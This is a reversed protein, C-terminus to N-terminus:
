HAARKRRSLAGLAVVGLFAASTPEPVAAFYSQEDWQLVKLTSSSQGSLGTPEFFLALKNQSDWLAHDYTPEWSGMNTTDLTISQWAAPSASNLSAVTNWYVVIDNNPTAAKNVSGMATDESRTVVLVRGQADILVVPRGLDRVASASTDFANDSTRNTVQSSRWQSGTYYYLMYNRDPNNTASVPKSADSGPALWTAIFPNGNVDATLSTQNILSSNQPINQIVQAVQNANGGASTNQIIPQGYATTGGQKYWTVGNDPSQAFMINSNTQYAPSARWTWSALLNNGGGTKPVFVMSIMYANVSTQEGNVFFNNTWTKTTPNYLNVYQNGNGSGGGAGGNRYTFLLNSSGPISYFQPYTVENTTAGSSPFLSPANSSTQRTFGISSLNSQLVSANSVAYNLSQNHMDWSLHMAGASDVALAIVNHDDSLESSTATFGSDFTSWTSAGSARRAIMVHGSTDYYGAFQYGGATTLNNVQIACSNTDVSYYPNTAITSFNISDSLADAMAVDAGALVIASCAAWALPNKGTRQHTGTRRDIM